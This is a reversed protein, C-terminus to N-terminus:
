PQYLWASSRPGGGNGYGGTILAEGTNMLTVASFQGAMRPDGPVLAFANTTHDYTEARPAGGGILVLGSPLLVSSGAHKYRPMRMTPGPVFTGTKPDFLESSDYVGRDDREDSGGTVLVRGDPLVVADHKHRPLRMDGDRTFAGTTPDYTEASAHLVIDRGRGRHGGVVLVRGDLLRVAVHSERPVAMRGTGSFQGTAPDYIEATSLFKWDPGVGGAVLVRGDELPVAVHGARAEALPGTSSFVRMAPDFIEAASLTMERNGFGGVILVSGAPLSTGTHSHRPTIMSPLEGFEGTSPDYMEAGRPLGSQDFGGTVLVRGDPLAVASHAARASRMDPGAVLHGAGPGDTAARDGIPETAGGTCGLVLCAALTDAVM